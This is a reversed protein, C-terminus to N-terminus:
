GTINRGSDIYTLEGNVPQASDTMFFASLSGVEEIDGSYIGLHQGIDDNPLVKSQREAQETKM